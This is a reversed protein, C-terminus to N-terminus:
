DEWRVDPSLRDLIAAVDGSGFAEYIATVSDLHTSHAPTTM